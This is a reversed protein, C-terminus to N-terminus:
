TGRGNILGNGLVPKRPFKLLLHRQFGPKKNLHFRLVMVKSWSIMVKHYDWSQEPGQQNPLSFRILFKIGSIIRAVQVM